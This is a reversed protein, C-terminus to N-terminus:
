RMSCCIAKEFSTIPRLNRQGCLHLREHKRSSLLLSVSFFVPLPLSCDYPFPNPSPKQLYPSAIAFPVPFTSALALAARGRHNPPPVAPLQQGSDRFGSWRCFQAQARAQARYFLFLSPSPKVLYRHHTTGLENMCVTMSVTRVNM